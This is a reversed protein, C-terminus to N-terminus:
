RVEELCDRCIRQGNIRMGHVDSQGCISCKTEIAEKSKAMNKIDKIAGDLKDFLQDDGFKGYLWKKLEEIKQIAEQAYDIRLAWVGERLRHIEEFTKM